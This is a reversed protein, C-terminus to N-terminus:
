VPHPIGLICRLTDRAILLEENTPIVWIEPSIGPPSIMKDQGIAAANAELDLRIGFVELSECIQARIEPSNEGIGGGFVIGDAGNLTALYAGLYKKVRYCFIDVALAARENGGERAKLLDRMDGSIGSIGYLGSHRNLETELDHLSTGERGLLYTLVGPDVDGPRTGMLLGELPTLGMSTDISRGHDIACMSSGNGLHCTIVKYHSRDHGHLRAFRYNLYRHSTGHFGYRRVRDRTYHLYPVGYHFARPPMAHHFSTDFVAVQKAEPLLRRTARYGKLNNPNHLPALDICREIERVVEHDILVSSVLREGGHVVRHGVGEIEGLSKVLSGSGTLCGLAAQIAETHDRVAVGERTSESGPVEYSVLAETSGIREVEGKALLRDANAATQELSTEILQFKLSSSGCNIVLIKM